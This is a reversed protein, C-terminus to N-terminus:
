EWIRIRKEIYVYGFCDNRMELRHCIVWEAPQPNSRILADAMEFSCFKVELQRYRPFWRYFLRKLFKM